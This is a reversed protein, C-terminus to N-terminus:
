QSVHHASEEHQHQLLLLLHVGGDRDFIEFHFEEPLDSDSSNLM